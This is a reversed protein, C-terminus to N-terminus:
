VAEPMLTCWGNVTGSSDLRVRVRFVGLPRSLFYSKLANASIPETDIEEWGGDWASHYDGRTRSAVQIGIVGSQTAKVNITKLPRFWDVLPRSYYDTGGSASLNRWLRVEQGSV